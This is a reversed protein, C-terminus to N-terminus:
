VTVNLSIDQILWRNSLAASTVWIPHRKPSTETATAVVLQVADVCMTARSVVRYVFNASKALFHVFLLMKAIIKQYIKLNKNKYNYPTSKGSSALTSHNQYSKSLYILQLTLRKKPSKFTFPTIIGVLFSLIFHTKFNM